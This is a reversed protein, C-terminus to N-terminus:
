VHRWTKRNVIYGINPRTVGYMAALQYTNAHGSNYAHRIALVMEETLVVNGNFEGAARRKRVKDAFNEEQTGVFLHEPNVCSPNDCSHCVHLGEPIPGIFMEYAARHAAIKKGNMRFCGYGGRNKSSTWTWCGKSVLAMFREKTTPKM